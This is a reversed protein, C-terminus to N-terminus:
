FDVGLRDRRGDHRGQGDRHQRYRDRLARHLVGPTDPLAVRREAFHPKGIQIGAETGPAIAALAAAPEMLQINWSSTV